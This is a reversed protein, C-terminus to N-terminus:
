VSLFCVAYHIQCRPFTLFTLASLPTFTKFKSPDCCRCVLKKCPENITRRIFHEGVNVGEPCAGKKYIDVTCKEQSAVTVRDRSVELTLNYHNPIPNRYLFVNNLHEEISLM